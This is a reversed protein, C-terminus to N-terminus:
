FLLHVLYDLRGSLVLKRGSFRMVEQIQRRYLPHYCHDSCHKCAPKPEMPCISRKYLAHALLRHCGPCLDVPGGMLAEVDHTKLRVREKPEDAHVHSCYIQIFRTLTRLDQRLKKDM